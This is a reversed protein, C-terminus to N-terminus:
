DFRTEIGTPNFNRFSKLQLLCAICDDHAM